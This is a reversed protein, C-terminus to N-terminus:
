FLNSSWHELQSENFDKIHQSQPFPSKSFQPPENCLGCLIIFYAILTQREYHIAISLVIIEDAIM